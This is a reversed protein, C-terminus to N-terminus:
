ITHYIYIYVGNYELNHKFKADKKDRGRTGASTSFPSSNRHRRRLELKHRLEGWTTIRNKVEFFGM